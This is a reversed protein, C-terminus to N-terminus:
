DFTIKTGKKSMDVDKFFAGYTDHAKKKVTTGFKLLDDPVPQNAGRLINILRSVRSCSVFVPTTTGDTYKRDLTRRTTSPSYPSPRARSGPAAPEGLATSM